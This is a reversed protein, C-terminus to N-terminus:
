ARARKTSVAPFPTTYLLVSVKNSSANVVALDYKLDGSLGASTLDISDDGVAFSQAVGSDSLNSTAPRM